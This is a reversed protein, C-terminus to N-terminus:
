SSIMPLTRIRIRQPELVVVAGREVSPAIERLNALLLKVQGIPNRPTAGRFLIVSPRAVNRMALITGFDTDASIIVRQDRDAHEFITEDDAAALGLDRVHIADHDAQRLGEAVVPSLANDILFRM